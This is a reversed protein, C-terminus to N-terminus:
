DSRGVPPWSRNQSAVGNAADGTNVASEAEGGVASAPGGLASYEEPSLRSAATTARLAGGCRGSADARGNTAARASPAQPSIDVGDAELNSGLGALALFRRLLGDAVVRVDAALAVERFPGDGVKALLAGDLSQFEGLLRGQWTLRRWYRDGDLQVGPDIRMAVDRLAQWLAARVEPVFFAEVAAAPATTAAAAVAHAPGVAGLEAAPLWRVALREQGALRFTELHCLQLTPQALRRMAALHGLEAALVLVRGRAGVAFQGEPVATALADGLRHLFDVAALARPVLLADSDAAFVLLVPAGAADRALGDVLGFQGHSCDLGEVVLRLGREVADLRAVIQEWLPHRVAAPVPNRMM